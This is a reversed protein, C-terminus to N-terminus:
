KKPIAEALWRRLTRVKPQEGGRKVLQTRVEKALESAKRPLRLHRHKQMLQAAIVLATKKNNARNKNVEEIIRRATESRKKEKQILPAAESLRAGYRILTRVAGTLRGSDKILEQAIQDPDPAVETFSVEATPKWGAPVNSKNIPRKM